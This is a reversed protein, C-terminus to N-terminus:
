YWVGEEFRSKFSYQTQNLTTSQTSVQGSGEKGSGNWVATAHRKMIIITNKQFFYNNYAAM